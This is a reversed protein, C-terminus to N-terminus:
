KNGTFVRTGRWANRSWDVFFLNKTGERVVGNGKYGLIAM